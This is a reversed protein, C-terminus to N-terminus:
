ELELLTGQAERRAAEKLIAQSGRTAIRNV